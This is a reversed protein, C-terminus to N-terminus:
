STVILFVYLPKSPSVFQMQQQLACALRNYGQEWNPQDAIRTSPCSNISQSKENRM